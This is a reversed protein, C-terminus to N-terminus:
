PTVETIELIAARRYMKVLGSHSRGVQHRCTVRGDDVMRGLASAIAATLSGIVVRVQNATMEGDLAALIRNEFEIQRQSKGHIRGGQMKERGPALHFTTREAKVAAIMQAPTFTEAGFKDGAKPPLVKTAVVSRYAPEVVVPRTWQPTAIPAAMCPGALTISAQMEKASTEAYYTRTFQHTNM